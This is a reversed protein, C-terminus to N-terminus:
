RTTATWNATVGSEFGDYFVFIPTTRNSFEVWSEGTEDFSISGAGPVVPNAFTIRLEFPPAVPGFECAGFVYGTGTFETILFFDVPTGNIAFDLDAWGGLGHHLNNRSIKIAIDAHTVTGVPPNRMGYVSDGINWWNPYADVDWTDNALPFAVTPGSFVMVEDIYTLGLNNGYIRVGMLSGSSRLDPTMDILTWDAGPYYLIQDHDTPGYILHVASALQDPQRMWVMVATIDSVAIPDFFQELWVNASSKACWKGRLPDAISVTWGSTDWATLDGTEFGSNVLSNPLNSGSDPEGSVAGEVSGLRDARDVQAAIPAAVLMVLLVVVIRKGLM